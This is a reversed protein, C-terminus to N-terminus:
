LYSKIEDETYGLTKLKELIKPEINLKQSNTEKKNNEQEFEEISIERNINVQENLEKLLFKLLFNIEIKKENSLNGVFSKYILNEENMTYLVGKSTINQLIVEKTNVDSKNRPQYVNKKFYVDHIKTDLDDVINKFNRYYIKPISFTSKAVNIEFLKDHVNTIDIKLRGLKLHQKRRLLKPWGGYYIVRNERYLYIGELDSLSKNPLLQQKLDNPTNLIEKPIVYGRIYINGSTDNILNQQLESLKSNFPNFAEINKNNISIAIKPIIENNDRNLGELFRHFVLSIHNSVNNSLVENLVSINSQKFIEEWFIMTTPEFDKFEDNNIRSNRTKYKDIYGYVETADLCKIMWRGTEKLLNVDWTYGIFNTNDSKLKSIVTFKRTQSFSATKLGLGFRGLDSNNRSVEMDSSPMKMANFLVDSKMGMGDDSIIMKLNNGDEYSLIQIKRAEATISNDILDSLATELSYGQEAISKIMLEPNPVIEILDEKM